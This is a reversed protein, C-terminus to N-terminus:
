AKPVKQSARGPVGWVGFGLDGIGGGGEGGKPHKKQRSRAPAWRVEGGPSACSRGSVAVM